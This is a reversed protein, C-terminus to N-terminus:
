VALQASIAGRDRRAERWAACKVKIWGLDKGSCYAQDKRKSVIGQLREKDAVALLKVVDAM